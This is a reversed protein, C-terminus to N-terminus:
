RTPRHDRKRSAAKPAGVRRSPTVAARLLTRAGTPSKACVKRATTPSASRATTTRPCWWILRRRWGTASIRSAVSFTARRSNPTRSSRSLPSSNSSSAVDNLAMARRSPEWNLARSVMLSISRAIREASSVSVITRVTRPDMPWTIEQSCVPIQRSRGSSRFRAASWVVVARPRSSSVTSSTSRVSSSRARRSRPSSRRKRRGSSSKGERTRLSGGRGASGASTITAGM